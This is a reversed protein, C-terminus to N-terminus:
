NGEMKKFNVEVLQQMQPNSMIMQQILEPNSMM